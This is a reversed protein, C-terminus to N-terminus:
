KPAIGSVAGADSRGPHAAGSAAPGGVRRRTAAALCPRRDCTRHRQGHWVDIQRKQITVNTAETADPWLRLSHPVCAVVEQQLSGRYITAQPAGSKREFLM